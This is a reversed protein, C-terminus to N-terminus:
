LLLRVEPLGGLAQFIRNRQTEDRVVLELELTHYRGGSSARVAVLTHESDGVIEIVAARVASEDTCVIRYTWACPYDIQPRKDDLRM